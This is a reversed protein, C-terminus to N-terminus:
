LASSTVCDGRRRQLLRVAEDLRSFQQDIAAVIRDQESRPPLLLELSALNRRSIRKRTTGSELAHIQRRVQPSNLMWM